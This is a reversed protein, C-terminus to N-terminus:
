KAWNKSERWIQRMLKIESRFGRQWHSQGFTRKGYSIPPRKVNIKNKRAQFLVFSEFLYDAPPNPLNEVFTKQCVTPTGGSDFMRERLIASQILGAIFTKARALHSRGIRAAKLVENRFLPHRDLLEIVEGPHIKLNGPMWGVFETTSTLVGFLIGGGFGLNEDTRISKWLESESELLERVSKDTSGNDVILFQTTESKVGNIQSLLVPLSKAENYIPIVITTKM